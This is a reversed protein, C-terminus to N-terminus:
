HLQFILQDLDLKHSGQGLSLFQVLNQRSLMRALGDIRLCLHLPTNMNDLWAMGLDKGRKRCNKLRTKRSDEKQMM